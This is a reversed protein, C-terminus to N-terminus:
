KGFIVMFLYIVGLISCVTMVSSKSEKQLDKLTLLYPFLGLLVMTMLMVGVFM